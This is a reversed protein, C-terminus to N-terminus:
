IGKEKEKKFKLDFEYQIVMQRVFQRILLLYIHRRLRFEEDTKEGIGIKDCIRNRKQLLDNELYNLLRKGFPEDSYVKHADRHAERWFTNRSTQRKVYDFIDTVKFASDAINELGTLQSRHRDTIVQAAHVGLKLSDEYSQEAALEAEIKMKLERYTDQQSSIQESM